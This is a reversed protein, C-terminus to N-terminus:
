KSSFGLEKACSNAQRCAPIADMLDYQIRSKEAEKQRAEEHQQRLERQESDKEEKLKKQQELKQELLQMELQAKEREIKDKFLREEDAARRVMSEKEANGAAAIREEAKRKQEDLQAQMEAFRLQAAAEDEKQNAEM